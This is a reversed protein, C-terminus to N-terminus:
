AFPPARPPHAVRQGDSPVPALHPLTAPLGTRVTRLSPTASVRAKSRFGSLASCLPCGAEDAAAAPTFAGPSATGVAPREARVLTEHASAGEHLSAASAPALTALVMTIALITHGAKAM